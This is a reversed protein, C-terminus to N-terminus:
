RKTKRSGASRPTNFNKKLDVGMEQKAIEIMKELFDIHIQKQGVIREREKIREKLQKIRNTSSEKEEVIKLGKKNYTSYKYIWVYITQYAIGFLRSIELVSLKGSEYEHVRARKFTESFIRRKKLKVKTNKGM